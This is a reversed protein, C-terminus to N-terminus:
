RREVTSGLHCLEYVRPRRVDGLAVLQHGPRPSGAAPQCHFPRCPQLAQLRRCRACRHQQGPFPPPGRIEPDLSRWSAIIALDLFVPLRTSILVTLPGCQVLLPDSARQASARPVSLFCDDDADDYFGSIWTPDSEIGTQGSGLLLLLAGVVTCLYGVAKMQPAAIKSM